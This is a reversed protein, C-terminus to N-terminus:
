QHHLWQKISIAKNLRHCGVVVSSRIDGQATMMDFANIVHGLERELEQRNTAEGEVSGRYRHRNSEYGHRKIKMVAQIVAACEEALVDLRESEAETLQNFHQTNRMLTKMRRFQYKM